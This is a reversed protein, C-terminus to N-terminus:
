NMLYHANIKQLVQNEFEKKRDSDFEFYPLYKKEDSQQEMYSPYSIFLHGKKSRVVKLKHIFLKIAPIYATFTAIVPPNDSQRYNLIDM